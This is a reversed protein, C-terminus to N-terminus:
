RMEWKPYTHLSIKAAVQACLTLVLSTDDQDKPLKSAEKSPTVGCTAGQFAPSGAEEIGTAEAQYQCAMRGYRHM